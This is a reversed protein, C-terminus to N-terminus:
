RASCRRAAAGGLLRHDREAAHAARAVHQRPVGVQAPQRDRAPPEQGPDRPVPAREPDRDGGPRRLDEAARDGQRSFAQLKDAGSWSRASRRPRGLADPAIALSYSRGYRERSGGCASDSCRRRRARGRLHVVRREGSRGVATATGTWRRGPFDRASAGRERRRVPASRAATWREGVCSSARAANGGFLRECSQLIREFVPQRTPWRVRQDGPPDRRDGDAAGADGATGRHARRGQAGPRRLVRAAAVSMQNFQDALAELEDGTRIDIKQDLDGAGIRAAGEQLTRIPRVM